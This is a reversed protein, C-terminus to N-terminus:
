KVVEFSRSISHGHEDVLVLRHKGPAPAAAMQHVLSTSGLFRDDLHWFLTTRQDRHAAEFLVKGTNGDSQRPLYVMLDAGPYIFELMAIDDGPPCGPLLPPLTRYGPHHRRYYHEMAPPLVFWRRTLMGTVPYCSGEVRYRQLSDLQITRHYPCAVTTLCSNPVWITDVDTCDPSARHGSERCVAVESMEALPQEFWGGGDIQGLLDFLLPAAATVGTLGPRGEGDANGAWVGVVYRPTVGIAWADRFGFSTGTKWAVLSSSSLYRWGSEEEPRNVEVLAAFTQWIAAQGIAPPAGDVPGSENSRNLQRALGAYVEVLQELSAEAGGLILSLGYHDASQTFTTFGLSRLLHLFRDTGYERLMEVAPINLSRSLAESAPVAGRWTLDFNQPTYGSFHVPIDPILMRPMLMGADLMGAYLFPKLISGTSRPAPIMDVAGGNPDDWSSNGCYVLKDGSAVEVVLAALNHILNSRLENAHRAVLQNASRQWTADISSQVREGPHERHMRDLLHPAERPLAMPEAPLPEDVALSWSLSDIRGHALLKDLLRNRKQRYEEENRGPFVMSPANPLVALAAAEGWSLDAAACGFYRWAAAELGVVNGGFPANGAYLTLIDRKSRVLDLKLAMTMEILKQWPTRPPDSRSLRVVQMTLTSAGSVVERSRINQVLARIVSVPNIGPHWYFWRDEFMRLCTGFKEPVEDGQPFRWQGDAAIRAGLLHGESSALVTSTPDDFRAQPVLLLLFLLLLLIGAVAGGRRM